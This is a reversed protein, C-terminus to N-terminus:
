RQRGGRGPDIQGSPAPIGSGPWLREGVLGAGSGALAEVVLTVQRDSRVPFLRSIPSHHPVLRRDGADEDGGSDQEHQDAGGRTGCDLDGVLSGASGLLGAEGLEVALELSEHVAGPDAAERHM